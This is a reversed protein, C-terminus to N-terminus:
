PSVELTATAEAVLDGAETTEWFRYHLTGPPITDRDPMTLTYRFRRSDAESYIAQGHSRNVVVEEGGPGTWVVEADAYVSRNGERAIVAELVTRHKDEIRRLKLSEVAVEVETEGKRVIVPLTTRVVTNIRATLGEDNLAQEPMARPQQSVMMHSRYEGDPLDPPLRLLLRIIQAQRPAIVAQRPAFIVYDEVPGVDTEPAKDGMRLKGDPTMAVPHWGIAIRDPQNRPNFIRLTATRQGDEFVIRTPNFNLAEARGSWVLLLAGVLCALIRSM